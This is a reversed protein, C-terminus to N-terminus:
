CIRERDIVAIMDYGTLRKLESADISKREIVRDIHIGNAGDGFEDRILTGDARVLENRVFCGPRNAPWTLTEPYKEMSGPIKPDLITAVRTDDRYFSVAILKAKFRMPAARESRNSATTPGNCGMLLAMLFAALLVRWEIM